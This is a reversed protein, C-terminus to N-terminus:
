AGGDANDCWPSHCCMVGMEHWTLQRWNINITRWYNVSLGRPDNLFYYRFLCLFLQYVMM